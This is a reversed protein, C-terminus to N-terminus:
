RVKAVFNKAQKTVDIVERGPGLTFVAINDMNANNIKIDTISNIYNLHANPNNSYFKFFDDGQFIWKTTDTGHFFFNKNEPYKIFNDIMINKASESTKM